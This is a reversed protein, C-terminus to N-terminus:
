GEPTTKPTTKPPEPPVVDNEKEIRIDARKPIMLPKDSFEIDITKFGTSGGELAQPNKHIWM